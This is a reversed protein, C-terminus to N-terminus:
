HAFLPPTEAELGPLQQCGDGGQVSASPLGHVQAHIRRLFHICESAFVRPSWFIGRVPPGTLSLDDDWQAGPSRGRQSWARSNLFFSCTSRFQSPEGWIGSPDTSYTQKRQTTSIGDSGPAVYVSTM